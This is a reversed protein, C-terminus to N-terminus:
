LSIFALIVGQQSLFYFLFMSCVILVYNKLNRKEKNKREPELLQSNKVQFDFEEHWVTYISLQFHCVDAMQIIKPIFKNNLMNKKLRMM